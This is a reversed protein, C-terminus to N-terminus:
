AYMKNTFPIIKCDDGRLKETETIIMSQSRKIGDIVIFQLPDFEYDCLCSQVERDDEELECYLFEEDFSNEKNVYQLKSILPFEFPQSIRLKELSKSKEKVNLIKSLEPTSFHSKSTNTNFKGPNNYKSHRSFTKNKQPTLSGKKLNNENLISLPLDNSTNIRKNGKSNDNQEFSLNQNKLEDPPINMLLKGRGELFNKLITKRYLNDENSNKLCVADAKFSPPTKESIIENNLDNTYLNSIENQIQFTNYEKCIENEQIRSIESSEFNDERNILTLEEEVEILDLCVEKKSNLHFDLDNIYKEIASQIRNKKVRSDDM